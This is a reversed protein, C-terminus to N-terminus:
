QEVKTWGYKGLYYNGSGMWFDYGTSGQPVTLTGGTKIDRFTDNSIIPATTALSVIRELDHCEGFSYIGISNVTSPIIINKINTGRFAYQSITTVGGGITVSTIGTCLNFANDGISIVNSPISVSFLDYIMYFANTPITTPDALTYKVTHKGITDFTYSNVITPQVVGDIEMETISNSTLRTLDISTDTRKIDYTAVLRLEIPEITNYYVKNNDECLSVNPLTVGGGM